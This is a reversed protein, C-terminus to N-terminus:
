VQSLLFAEKIFRIRVAIFDKGTLYYKNANEIFLWTWDYFQDVWMIYSSVTNNSIYM